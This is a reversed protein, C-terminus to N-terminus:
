IISCKPQLFCERVAVICSWPMDSVPTSHLAVFSWNTQIPTLWGRGNFCLNEAPGCSLLKVWQWLVHDTSLDLLGLFCYSEFFFDEWFSRGKAPFGEMACVCLVQIVITLFCQNIRIDEVDAMAVASSPIWPQISGQDSEICVNRDPVQSVRPLVWSQQVVCGSIRVGKRKDICWILTTVVSTCFESAPRFCFCKLESTLEVSPLLVWGPKIWTIVCKGM